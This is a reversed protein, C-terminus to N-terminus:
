REVYADNLCFRLYEQQDPALPQDWRLHLNVTGNSEQLDISLGNYSRFTKRGANEGAPFLRPFRSHIDQSVCTAVEDLEFESTGEFQVDEVGTSGSCSALSISLACAIARM